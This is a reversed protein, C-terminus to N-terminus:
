TGARALRSPELAVQAAHHTLARWLVEARCITLALAQVVVLPRLEALATHLVYRWLFVHYHM